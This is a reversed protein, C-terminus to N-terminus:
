TWAADGKGAMQRGMGDRAPAPRAPAAAAATAATMGRGASRGPRTVCTATVSREGGTRSM